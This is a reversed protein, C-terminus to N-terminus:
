KYWDIRLMEQPMIIVNQQCMWLITATESFYGSRRKYGEERRTEFNHKRYFFDIKDLIENQQYFDFLSKVIERKAIIQNSTGVNKHIKELGILSIFEDIQEDTIKPFVDRLVSRRGIVFNQAPYIDSCLIVDEDIRRIGAWEHMQDIPNLGVYKINWSGTTLGVYKKDPPFLYEFDEYFIRSETFTNDFKSGLNNLNVTELYGRNQISEIPEMKHTLVLVKFPNMDIPDKEKYGILYNDNLWTNEINADESHHDYNIIDSQSSLEKINSKKTCVTSRMNYKAPLPYVDYGDRHILIEMWRQDDKEFHNFPFAISDWIGAHKKSCIIVSNDYSSNMLESEYRLTRDTHSEIVPYKSFYESKLLFIRKGLNSKIEPNDKSLITMSDHIGIKDEPVVDFLNACDDRIFLDLGFFITRKYREVYSKIRGKELSIFGQTRGKLIVFDADIKEAYNRIRNISENLSDKEELLYTIVVNEKSPIINDPNILDVWVPYKNDVLLDTIDYKLANALSQVLANANSYDLVDAMVQDVKSVANKIREPQWSAFHYGYNNTVAKIVDNAIKM